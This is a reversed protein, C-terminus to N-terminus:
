IGDCFYICCSRWKFCCTKRISFTFVIASSNVNVEKSM